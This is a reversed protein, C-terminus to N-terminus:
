VGTVQPLPGPPDMILGHEEVWWEDPDFAWGVLSVSTLNARFIGTPGHIGTLSCSYFASTPGVEPCSPTKESESPSMAESRGVGHM